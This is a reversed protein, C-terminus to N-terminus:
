LGAQRRMITTIDSLVKRFEGVSPDATLFKRQPIPYRWDSRNFNSTGEGRQHKWAYSVKTGFEFGDDNVKWVHKGHDTSTLSPYLRENGSEWRLEPTPDLIPNNLKNMKWNYYQREPATAGPWNEGAAAGQTKFVKKQWKILRRHVESGIESWDGKDWIFKRVARAGRGAGTVRLDFSYSM